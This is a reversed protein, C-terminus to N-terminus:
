RKVTLKQKAQLAKNDKFVELLNTVQTTLLEIKTNATKNQEELKFITEKLDKIDANAKTELADVRTSLYASGAAGVKSALDSYIGVFTWQLLGAIRENPNMKINTAYEHFGWTRLLNLEGSLSGKDGGLKVMGDIIAQRLDDLDKRIAKPDDAAMVQSCFCVTSVM